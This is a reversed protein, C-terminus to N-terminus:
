IPNASGHRYSHQPHKTGFFNGNPPPTDGSVPAEEATLPGLPLTKDQGAHPRAFRGASRFRKM